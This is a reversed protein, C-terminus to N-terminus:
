ARFIGINRQSRTPNFEFTLLQPNWEYDSLGLLDQRLYITTPEIAGAPFPRESSRMVSDWANLARYFKKAM